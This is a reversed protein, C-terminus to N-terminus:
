DEKTRHFMRFTWDSVTKTRCVYVTVVFLVWLTVMVLYPTDVDTRVTPVPFENEVDSLEVRTPQFDVCMCMYMVDAISVDCM